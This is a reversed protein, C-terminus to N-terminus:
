SVTSKDSERGKQLCESFSTKVTRKYKLTHFEGPIQPKRIPGSTTSIGGDPSGNSHGLHLFCLSWGGLGSGSLFQMNLICLNIFYSM